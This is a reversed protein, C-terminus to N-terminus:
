TQYVQSVAPLFKQCSRLTALMPGALQLPIMVQQNGILLMRPLQLSQKTGHNQAVLLRQPNRFKHTSHLCGFAWGHGSLPQLKHCLDFARHAKRGLHPWADLPQPFSGAYLDDEVAHDTLHPDHEKNTHSSNFSGCTAQLGGWTRQKNSKQNGGGGGGINQWKTVKGPHLPLVVVGARPLLVFREAPAIHSRRQRQKQELLWKNRAKDGIQKQTKTNAERQQTQRTQKNTQKKRQKKTQKNAQKRPRKAKKVRSQASSKASVAGTKQIFTGNM